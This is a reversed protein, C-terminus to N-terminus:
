MGYRERPPPRAADFCERRTDLARLRADTRDIGQSAAMRAEASCQFELDAAPGAVGPASAPACGALVLLGAIM